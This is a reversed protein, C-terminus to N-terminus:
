LWGGALDPRIIIRPSPPRGAGTPAPTVLVLYGREELLELANVLASVRPFSGKLAQYADRLSAETRRGRQLWAWVKQAQSVGPDGGMLLMAAMGHRLCAAAIELAQEMTALSIATEWPRGHANEIGHLVAAIRAAGGPIKGALDPAHEYEGGPRMGHEVARAFDLWEGYAPRSLTLLHPQERGEQDLAPHWDLMARIGQRYARAVGEPLCAGAREEGLDRFGLPSPPLLYLFRGLLGRGRFGPQNALGRLAEPQPSLGITLRPSLLYVPPRGGRDVREPDGSWAKLVLDLNPIGKSYRGALMDFIGAESSLWAMCEGQDALMAGLREPTADSTWLQPTVPPPSIQAELAAAENAAALIEYQEKARAAAARAANARAQLTKAESEAQRIEQAMSATAEREWEVLPACCASHVASKRNGPPLGIALWLNSPERHGHSVQVRLRRACPVAAAALALGTALEPPTETSLALAQAFAGAWGPLVDARLRPLDPTELEVLEPWADDAPPTARTKRDGIDGIDGFNRNQAQPPTSIRDGIDGIDGINGRPTTIGLLRAAAKVAERHDGGHELVTFLSFADHPPGALPDSAHHCHIRGTQSLRVIGALGSSSFPSLWRNPGKPTYGHAALIAAPDHAANFADIVSEGGARERPPAKVEPEPAWPCLAELHPRWQDWDAWLEGLAPPLTGLKPLEWPPTIWEYPRGTDPHITPPLVDQVPGGRLEFVTVPKGGEERPPWALSKRTLDVDAPARFIARLREPNGRVLMAGSLLADPELGLADLVARAEPLSDLDLSVLRSAGLVVGLGEKPNALWYEAPLNGEPWGPTIPGKKGPPIACLCFGLRHFYQAWEYRPADPAPHPHHGAPSAPAPEAPRRTLRAQLEALAEPTAPPPPGLRRFARGTPTPQTEVMTLSRAGM